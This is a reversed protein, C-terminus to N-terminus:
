ANAFEELATAAEIYARAAFKRGTIREATRIMNRPTCARSAKIGTRAYLRLAKAIVIAQYVEPGGRRPRQLEKILADFSQDDLRGSEDMKFTPSM